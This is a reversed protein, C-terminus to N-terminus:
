RIRGGVILSTGHLIERVHKTKMTEFWLRTANPNGGRKHNVTSYYGHRAKPATFVIKGPKSIRGSDRLKGSNRYRPLAVPVYPIMKELCQRDVYNQAIEFRKKRVKLAAKNWILDATM